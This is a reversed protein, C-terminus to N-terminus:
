PMPPALRKMKMPPKGERLTYDAPVEFLSRAPENRSINTLRYVTEGFRPDSHRTMVVTKLEPSYWRESVIEIPRENGIEGAPITVTTRSGEATVGEIIQSGLKETVAKDQRGRERKFVFQAGPAPHPTKLTFMEAQPGEGQPPGAVPPEPLPAREILVDEDREGSPPKPAYTKFEFHFAPMKRAVHTRPDLTYSVGAVPDTIIITQPPEGGVAFPGFGRLTQERRTRGESDRHISSISKNVIRNGDSLTQTSETLAQASYPAGTVTKGDFSMESAVFVFTDGMPPPPPGDPAGRRQFVPEQQIVVGDPAPQRQQGSVSAAGALIVGTLTFGVFVKGYMKM